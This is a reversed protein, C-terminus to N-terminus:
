RGTITVLGHQCALHTAVSIMEQRLYYITREGVHYKLSTSIASHGDWFYRMVKREWPTCEGYAYEIIELWLEPRRVVAGNDLVVKDLPSMNRIAAAATPDPTTSRRATEGDSQHGGARAEAVAAAIQTQRVFMISVTYYADRRGKSRKM